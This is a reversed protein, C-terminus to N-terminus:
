MSGQTFAGVGWFRERAANTHLFEQPGSQPKLILASLVPLAASPVSDATSLVSPPKKRTEMYSAASRMPRSRVLTPTRPTRIRVSPSAAGLGRRSVSGKTAGRRRPEREDISEPTALGACRGGGLLHAGQFSAATNEVTANKSAKKKM